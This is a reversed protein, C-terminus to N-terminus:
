RVGNLHKQLPLVHEEGAQVGIVNMQLVAHHRAGVSGDNASDLACMAKKAEELM